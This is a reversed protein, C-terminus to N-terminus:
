SGTWVSVFFALGAVFIVVYGVIEGLYRETKEAMQWCEREQNLTQNKSRFDVACWPKQKVFWSKWNAINKASYM